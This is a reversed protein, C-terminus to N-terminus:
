NKYQSLIVGSPCLPVFTHVVQRVNNVLLAGSPSDLSM